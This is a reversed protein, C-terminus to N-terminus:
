QQVPAHCTKLLKGIADNAQDLLSSVNSNYDGQLLKQDQLSRAVQVTRAVTGAVISVGYNEFAPSAITMNKGCVTFLSLTDISQQMQAKAKKFDSSEEDALYLSSMLKEDRLKNNLSNLTGELIQKQDPLPCQAMIKPQDAVIQAFEFRLGDRVAEPMDHLDGLLVSRLLSAGGQEATKACMRGLSPIVELSKSLDTNKNRLLPAWVDLALKANLHNGGVLEEVANLCDPVLQYDDIQYALKALDVIAKKKILDIEYPAATNNYKIVAGATAIQKIFTIARRRPLQLNSRDRVQMTFLDAASVGEYEPIHLVEQYLAEVLDRAYTVGTKAVVNHDTVINAAKQAFYDKDLLHEASQFLDIAKQAIKKIRQADTGYAIAQKVGDYADQLTRRSSPAAWKAPPNNIVNEIYGMYIEALQGPIDFDNGDEDRIQSYRSVYDLLPNIHFRKMNDYAPDVSMVDKKHATLLTDIAAKVAYDPKCDKTLLDFDFLLGVAQQFHNSKRNVMHGNEEQMPDCNVFVDMAATLLNADERLEKNKDGKLKACFDRMAAVKDPADKIKELRRYAKEKPTAFMDTIRALM